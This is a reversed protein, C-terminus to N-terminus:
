KNGEDGGGGSDNDYLGSQLWVDEESKRINRRGIKGPERQAATFSRRRTVRSELNKWMPQLDEDSKIELPADSDVDKDDENGKVITTDKSGNDSRDNEADGTPAFKSELKDIQTRRWQMSAALSSTAPTDKDDDDVGKVEKHETVLRRGPIITTPAAYASQSSSSLISFRAPNRHLCRASASRSFISLSM